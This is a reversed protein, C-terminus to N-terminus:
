GAIATSGWYARSMEVWRVIKAQRQLLWNDSCSIEGVPHLPSPGCTDRRRGLLLHGRAVRPPQEPQRLGSAPPTAESSERTGVQDVRCEAFYMTM